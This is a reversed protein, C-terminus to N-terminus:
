DTWDDWGTGSFFGTWGFLGYTKRNGLPWGFAGVGGFGGGCGLGWAGGEGAGAGRDLRMGGIGDRSEYELIMEEIGSGVNM